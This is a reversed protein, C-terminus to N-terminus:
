VFIAALSPANSKYHNIHTKQRWANRCHTRKEINFFKIWILFFDQTIKKFSSFDSMEWAIGIMASTRFSPGTVSNRITSAYALTHFIDSM